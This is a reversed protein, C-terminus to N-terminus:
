VEEAGRQRSQRKVAHERRHAAQRRPISDRVLERAYAAVSPDPDAQGAYLLRMARRTDVGHDWADEIVHLAERRVLPSPDAYAESIIDWL